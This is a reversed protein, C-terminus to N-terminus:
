LRAKIAAWHAAIEDRYRWALYALVVVTVVAAGAAMWGWPLGTAAVEPVQDAGATGGATVTGGASTKTAKSRVDLMRTIQAKTAPGAKGDVTLNSHANQVARVASETGPGFVGDIEGKYFGLKALDTQLAKVDDGRSGLSLVAPMLPPLKAKASPKAKPNIGHPYVGTILLTFERERRSVLGQIVRGGGKVWQMFRARIQEISAKARWLDVWSAKGIAGTNFHFGVGADFEYPKAGPMAREVAPEYNRELALAFLRRSEERTIVMGKTPKVVGSAATLGVGITWIGAPCKYAKLVEGEDAIIMLQGAQTTKAM